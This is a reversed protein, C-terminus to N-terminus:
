TESRGDPTTPPFSEAALLRGLHAYLTAAEDNTMVLDGVGILSGDNSISLPLALRGAATRRLEGQREIRVGQAPNATLGIV